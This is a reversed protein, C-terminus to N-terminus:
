NKLILFLVMPNRDKWVERVAGLVRQNLRPCARKLAGLIVEPRQRFM